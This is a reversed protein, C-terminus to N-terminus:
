EDREGCEMKRAKNEKGQLLCTRLSRTIPVEEQQIFDRKGVDLYTKFLTRLARGTRVGGKMKRARERLFMRAHETGDQCRTRLPGM